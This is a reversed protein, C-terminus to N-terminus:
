PESLRRIPDVVPDAESEKVSTCSNSVFLILRSLHRNESGQEEGSWPKGGGGLGAGDSGALM